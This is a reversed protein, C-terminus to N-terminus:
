RFGSPPPQLHTPLTPHRSLYPLPSPFSGPTLPCPLVHARGGGATLGRGGVLHALGNLHVSFELFAHFRPVPEFALVRHPRPAHQAQMHKRAELRGVGLWTM